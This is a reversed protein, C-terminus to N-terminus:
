PAGAELRAPVYAVMRNLYDAVPDKGECGAALIAPLAPKARGGFRDLVNIAALRVLPAEHGLARALEPLAAAHDGLNGVAEAAAIRVSPSADAMAERLAAEAPKAEGGLAVLGLAGWWRLAADGSQLLAALRGANGPDRANALDAAALLAELPNKEPDAAAEWPTVGASRARMEHEPLLGLDGTAKMWRVCEARLRELTERHEPDAALNALQHPDTENDYLEEVPKSEAFYRAPPGSLGGSAALRRWAKMTPMEETYSVFQSWGLHPMFNRHYQYRRDRVVRVLDFREAMRDRIAHVYDRPPGAQGGLFAVGQLHPPLAVGCLSLVTPAFDVFSVLRDTTGGPAAPALHQWKKPFRVLLPVRLGGEWIWKKMGPLGAGNDGFFFVITDEALGAEELEALKDGVQCDMAAINDHYRAWDRRVEPTDPHFPPVPAKAPDHRQGPALRATNERYKEEPARIQSEHCVEHNFVAFFPQGPKRNRWHGKRGNEDWAGEPVAFNYDTKANNSCHYGAERLFEGFCKVEAPLTTTSRMGQSGLRNPFVGTVLCSRNPACVGTIGFARTYRVAQAAFRDLNPTAAYADGYCGLNPSIDEATLWLINPRAAAAAQPPAPSAPRLPQPNEVWGAERQGRGRRDGDGILARADEALGTLKAVVEPHRASVEREEGVDARVDYLALAQPKAGAKAMAAKTELPLYLKWPGARVAQLQAAHYYFFGTADYPSAAGAEGLLLGRIDHGDIARKPGPAGALKVFTPVFDMMTCLEDSVTGAPIRGPWRVICPMRQAAETTNYAMGRYPANSGQPPNRQVAGNDSTWVVLTDRDLGHDALAKLIEGASWDLEEIADGYPGNASKGAFAPGPYPDRRSGPGTEPFYLFFPTKGDKRAAIFKVAEATLRATLHQAEVPAEVVEEDRLLPLEPWTRGLVTRAGMDESYPIGLFRDFGQRTPLFEPQDGLHWKGLCLTDYGARKLLEAMTEEAPDLGKKDAPKLVVQNEYSLHLGVRRPYCGTMLAARSPTCVGSASYFSTLRRGEAAMRDLNPTRHKTAPHFCAIDGNGLNDCLLFVINPREPGALVGGHMALLLPAALLAFRLTM